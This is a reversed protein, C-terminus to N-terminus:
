LHAKAFRSLLKEAEATTPLAGRKGYGGVEVRTAKGALNKAPDALSQLDKEALVVTRSGALGFRLDTQGLLVCFEMFDKEQEFKLGVRKKM